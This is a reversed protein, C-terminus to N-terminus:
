VLLLEENVANKIPNLHLRKSLFDETELYRKIKERM